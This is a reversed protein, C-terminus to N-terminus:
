RIENKWKFLCVEYSDCPRKEKGGHECYSCKDPGSPEYTERFIEDDCPYQEGKIGTILWDGPYGHLTGERTRISIRETIRVAEIEVPKKTFQSM